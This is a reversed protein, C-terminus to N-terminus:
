MKKRGLKSIEPGNGDDKPIFFSGRTQKSERRDIEPEQQEPINAPRFTSEKKVRM